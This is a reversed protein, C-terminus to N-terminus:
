TTNTSPYSLPTPVTTSSTTPTQTPPIGNFIAKAALGCPNLRTDRNVTSGDLMPLHPDIDEIEDVPSCNTVDADPDGALQQFSRSKIFARHNQYFDVLRYYVLVPAEMDEELEFDVECGVTKGPVVECKDDYRM